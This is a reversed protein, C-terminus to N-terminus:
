TALCLAKENIICCPIALGRLPNVFDDPVIKSLKLQGAPHVVPCYNVIGAVQSVACEERILLNVGCKELPM